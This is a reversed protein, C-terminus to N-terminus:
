TSILLNLEVNYICDFCNEVKGTEVYECGLEGFYRYTAVIKQVERLVTKDELNKM